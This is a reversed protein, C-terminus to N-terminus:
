PYRSVFVSLLYRNKGHSHVKCNKRTEKLDFEGPNLVQFTPPGAEVSQDNVDPHLPDENADPM